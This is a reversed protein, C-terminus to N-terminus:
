CARWVALITKPLRMASAWKKASKRLSLGGLSDREMLDHTAKFFAEKLNGHHYNHAAAMLDGININM